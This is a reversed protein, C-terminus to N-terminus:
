HGRRDDQEDESGQTSACITASSYVPHQGSQRCPSEEQTYANPACMEVWRSSISISLMATAFIWSATDCAGFAGALEFLTMTVAPEDHERVHLNVEAKNGGSERGHDDDKRARLVM